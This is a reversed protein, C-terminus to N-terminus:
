YKRVLIVVGSPAWEERPVGSYIIVYNELEKTGKSKKKTESIVAIDIKRNKLERNPEDLKHTIDGVNWTAVKLDEM